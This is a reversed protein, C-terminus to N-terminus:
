FHTSYARFVCVQRYGKKKQNQKVGSRVLKHAEYTLDFTPINSQLFPELLEKEEELIDDLQESQVKFIGNEFAPSHVFNSEGSIYHHISPYNELLGDLIARVELLTRKSDQLVKTASEFEELDKM